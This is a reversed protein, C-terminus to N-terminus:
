QKQEVCAQPTCALPNPKQGPTGEPILYDPLTNPGQRGRGSVYPDQNAPLSSFYMGVAYAYVGRSLQKSLLQAITTPYHAYYDNQKTAFAADCGNIRIATNSSLYNNINCPPTLSQDCVVTINYAAVNTDDGAAQGVFLESAYELPPTRFSNKRLPSAARSNTRPLRQNSNLLQSLRSRPLFRWSFARNARFRRM